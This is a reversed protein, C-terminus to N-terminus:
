RLVSAILDAGLAATVDADLEYHVYRGRRRATLLGARRLVALHRSVEPASLEWAAALEGTTHPGRALTRVLRLRTPHALAELRLRVTDLPVPTAPRAAVPYQVVPRWGPAHVCVLHPDGFLTPVFTLGDGVASASNDQLKDVVIRQRAADLRLAPSVGHLTEALGRRALLDAKLRLDALLQPRVRAWTGDFFAPGCAELTRRLRARVMPPDATLREAFAAQEPGRAQALDLARDRVAPDGLPSPLGFLMRDTGCTTVLASTVYREDGIADVADLEEALSAGPRGPLLFDARSSRWLFEAEFLRESLEPALGARTRAAWDALGPHHQPAALVHLMATLEALPSAAFLMREPPVGAIDVTLSM